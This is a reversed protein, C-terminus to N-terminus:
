DINKIGDLEEVTIEYVLFSYGVRDKPEFNDRLWRYRERGFVGTLYNVSVIVKGTIPRDPNFVADPNKSLYEQLKKGDQAWDLNSDSLIKYSQKRDPTLENFYAIFDPYYSIVSIVLYLCLLVIVTKFKYSFRSWNRFFVGTFIYILPFIIILHRIGVQINFFFNLYIVFFVIPVLLFIEDRMFNLKKTNFLNARKQESMEMLSGGEPRRKAQPSTPLDGWAPLNGNSGIAQRTESSLPSKRTESPIPNFAFCNAKLTGLGRKIKTLHSLLQSRFWFLYYIISLMVFLQIAIPEKFLYAVFFYGTFGKFNHSGEKLQGLMYVNGFTTHNKENYSVWDIGQIYPEPLFLPM